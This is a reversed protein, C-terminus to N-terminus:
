LLSLVQDPNIGAAVFADDQLTSMSLVLRHQIVTKQFVFSLCRSTKALLAVKSKLWNELKLLVDEAVL